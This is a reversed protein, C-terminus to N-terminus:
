EGMQIPKITMKRFEQGATAHAQFVIPGPDSENEDLAGPTVGDVSQADIIVVDNMKVTVEDGVMRVDLTNWKGPGQYADRLPAIQGYISGCKENRPVPKGDARRFQSDLLNLEYRGRLFVGTNCKPPLKFELHLEFDKYTKKTRISPGTKDLKLVGRNISWNTIDDTKKPGILQQDLVDEALQEGTAANEKAKISITISIAVDLNDDYVVTASRGQQVKDIGSGKGDITIKTKKTVSLELDDIAILNKETDVAKIKGTMTREAASATASVLLLAAVCAITTRYEYM